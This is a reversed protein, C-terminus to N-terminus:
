SENNEGRLKALDTACVELVEGVSQPAVPLSLEFYRLWFRGQEYSLRIEGRELVQGYLGGLVPLLVKSDLSPNTPHWDIDFYLPYRSPPGKELVALWWKNALDGVGMHNPVVDLGLGLGHGPLAATFEDFAASGGLQSNIRNHDCVDYGHSSGSRSQLIPATY